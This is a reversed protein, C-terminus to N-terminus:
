KETNEKQAETKPKKIKPKKISDNIIIEDKNEMRILM